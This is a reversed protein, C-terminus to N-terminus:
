FTGLKILTTINQSKYVLQRQILLLSEDYPNDNGSVGVFDGVDLNLFQSASFMGESLPEKYFNNNHAYNQILDLYENDATFLETNYTVNSINTLEDQIIEEKDSDHIVRSKIDEILSVDKGVVLEKQKTKDKFDRIILGRFGFGYVSNKKYGRLIKKLYHYPPTLVRNMSLNSTLNSTFDKIVEGPYLETIADDIGQYQGSGSLSVFDLNSLTFKVAVEGRVNNQIDYVYGKLNFETGDNHLLKISINRNTLDIEDRDTSLLLTGSPLSGFLSELISLEKFVVNGKLYPDIFVEFVRSNEAM